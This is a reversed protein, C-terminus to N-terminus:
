CGEQLINQHHAEFLVGFSSHIVNVVAITVEKLIETPRKPRKYTKLLCIAVYIGYCMRVLVVIVYCCRLLAM